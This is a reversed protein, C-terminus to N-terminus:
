SYDYGYCYSEVMGHKRERGRALVIWVMISSLLDGRISRILM